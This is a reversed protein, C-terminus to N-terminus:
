HQISSTNSIWEYKGKFIFHRSSYSVIMTLDCKLVFFRLKDIDWEM